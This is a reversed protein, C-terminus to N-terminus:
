RGYSDTPPLPASRDNRRDLITIEVAPPFTRAEDRSLRGSFVLLEVLQRFDRERSERLEVVRQSFREATTWTVTQYSTAFIRSARIAGDRLGTAGSRRGLHDALGYV